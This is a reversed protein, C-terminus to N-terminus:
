TPIPIEEVCAHAADQIEEACMPCRKVPRERSHGESASTM